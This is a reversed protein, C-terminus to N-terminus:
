ISTSTIPGIKQFEDLARIGFYKYEKPNYCPDGDKLIVQEQENPCAPPQNFDIKTEPNDYAMSFNAEDIPTASCVIQYAVVPENAGVCDSVSDPKDDDDYPALWTLTIQKNLLSYKATLANVASPKFFQSDDCGDANEDIADPAYELPCLDVDDTVLDNDSDRDSYNPKGDSDTDEQSDFPDECFDFISDKDTDLYQLEVAVEVTQNETWNDIQSGWKDFDDYLATKKEGEFYVRDNRKGFVAVSIQTSDTDMQIAIPNPPTYNDKKRLVVNCSKNTTELACKKSNSYFFTFEIEDIVDVLEGPIVGKDAHTAEPQFTYCEPPPFDLKVSVAYKAEDKKADSCNLSLFLLAILALVLLSSTFFRRPIMAKDMNYPENMTAM